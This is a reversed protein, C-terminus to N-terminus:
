NPAEAKKPVFRRGSLFLLRQLPNGPLQDVIQFREEIESRAVFSGHCRVDIQVLIKLWTWLVVVPAVNVVDDGGDPCLVAGPAFTPADTGARELPPRVQGATVLVQVHV